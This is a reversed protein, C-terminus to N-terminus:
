VLLPNLLYGFCGAEHSIKLMYNNETVYLLGTRIFSVILLGHNFIHSSQSELEVEAVSSASSPFVCLVGSRQTLVYFPM